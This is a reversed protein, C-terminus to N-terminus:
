NERKRSRDPQIPGVTKKQQLFGKKELLPATGIAGFVHALARFLRKEAAFHEM